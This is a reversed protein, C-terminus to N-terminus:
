FSLIVPNNQIMMKHQLNATVSVILIEALYFTMNNHHLTGNVSVKSQTFVPKHTHTHTIMDSMKSDVSVIM